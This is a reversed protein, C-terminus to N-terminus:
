TRLSSGPHSPVHFAIALTYHSALLLLLAFFVQHLVLKSFRSAWTQSGGFPEPQISEQSFGPPSAIQLSSLVHNPKVKLNFPGQWHEGTDTYFDPFLCTSAPIDTPFQEHDWISCHEFGETCQPFGWYVPYCLGRCDDVLLIKQVRSLEQYQLYQLDVLPPNEMTIKSFSITGSM